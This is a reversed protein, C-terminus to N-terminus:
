EKIFPDNFCTLQDEKTKDIDGVHSDLYLVNSRKNPHCAAIRDKMPAGIADSAIWTSVGDTLVGVESHIKKIASLKPRAGLSTEAGGATQALFYNISYTTRYKAAEADSLNYVSQVDNTSDAVAIYEKGLADLCFRKGPTCLLVDGSLEIKYTWNSPEEADYNKAPFYDNYSDIYQVFGNGIQKLNNVCSIQHAKDRASSLAPLLMGALIAIIAIVVLLEILTFNQQGTSM